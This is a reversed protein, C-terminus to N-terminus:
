ELACMLIASDLRFALSFVNGLRCSRGGSISLGRPAAFFDAGTASLASIAHM